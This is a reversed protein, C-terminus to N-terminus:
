TGAPYNLVIPILFYFLTSLVILGITLPLLLKIQIKYKELFKM